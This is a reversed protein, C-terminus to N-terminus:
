VQVIQQISTPAPFNWGLASLTERVLPRRFVLPLRTVPWFASLCPHAHAVSRALMLGSVRVARKEVGGVRPAARMEAEAGQLVGEIVAQPPEGGARLELSHALLMAGPPRGARNAGCRLSGSTMFRAGADEDAEVDALGFDGSCVRLREGSM